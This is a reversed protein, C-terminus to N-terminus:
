TCQMEIEARDFRRDALNRAGITFYILGGPGWGHSDIGNEYEGIQALLRQQGPHDAMADVDHQVLNPWGLLKSIDNDYHDAQALGLMLAARQIDQYTNKQEKSLALKEIATSRFDPLEFTEIFHLACTPMVEFDSIPADALSLQGIEPWHFVAGQSRSFGGCGTVLDHDGFFALLGSKPLDEASAFDRLDACNIQGLFFLPERQYVPWPWGSPVIPMDGFRSAARSLRAPPRRPWLRIAPRILDILRTAIDDPFAAKLQQRLTESPIGSPPAKRTYRFQWELDPKPLPEQECPNEEEDAWRLSGQADRGIDDKREALSRLAALSAARDFPKCWYAAWLRITPDGVALLSRLAIKGADTARIADVIRAGKRFLRNYHGIHETAKMRYLNDVAAEVLEMLTLTSLDRIAATAQEELAVVQWEPRFAADLLRTSAGTEFMEKLGTAFHVPLEPVLPADRILDEGPLFDCIRVLTEILLAALHLYSQVGQLPREQKYNDKSADTGFGLAVLAALREPTAVLEANFYGSVCECLVKRDQDDLCCQVYFAPRAEPWLILYRNEAKLPQRHIHLLSAAVKYQERALLAALHPAPPLGNRPSLYASLDKSPSM